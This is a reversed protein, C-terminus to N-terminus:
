HKGKHISGTSSPSWGRAELVELQAAVVDSLNAVAVRRPKGTAMALVHSTAQYMTLEDRMDVLDQRRGM